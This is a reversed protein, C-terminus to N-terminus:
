PVWRLRIFGSRGIERLRGADNSELHRDDFLNTGAISVELNENVMWGLRMDVAVYAPVGSELEDVARVFLDFELNDSLDYRSQIQGWADPDDGQSAIGTIDLSGPKHEFSKHLAAVGATLRWRPTVDWSGWAEVGYVEGRATNAFRVPLVGPPTLDVTRLDDYDHFYAAITVSTNSTPQGRYGVEYAWLTEAQMDGAELFGVFTLGRDIRSPTRVARAARAWLFANDSAAWGLRLSPLWELGSLSSDEAKVALTLTLDDTLAWRDHVFVNSLSVRLREPDVFVLAPAPISYRSDVLRYGAGVTLEHSPHPRFHHEASVDYTTEVSELMFESRENHDVYAQVSFWAAEGTRRTWRGLVNGGDLDADLVDRNAVRRSYLDGQVTFSDDGADWDARFGGQVGAADDNLDGGGFQYVGSRDFATVYVRAAGNDGFRMGRRATARRDADGVLLGFYTGESDTAKRTIINIVGNVANAGYLTGGAGSIVEIREIEGLPLDHTDWSVGSYLPTYISRGDVLVQLKNSTERSNFGRATIAYSVADIRAVELNPALRLVEPLSQAGSRRIDEASIVFIAAAAEALPEPERSVSTVDVQALEELSLRSLDALGSAADARDIEAPAPAPMGLSGFAADNTAVPHVDAEGVGEAAFACGPAALAVLAAAAVGCVLNGATSAVASRRRWIAKM